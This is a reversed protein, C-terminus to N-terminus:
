KLEVVIGGALEYSPEQFNLSLEQADLNAASNQTLQQTSVDKKTEPSTTPNCLFNFIKNDTVFKPEIKKFSYKTPQM